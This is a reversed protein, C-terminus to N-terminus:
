PDPTGGLFIHDRDWGALSISCHRLLTGAVRTACTNQKGLSTLQLIAFGVFRCTHIYIYIDMDMDIDLNM